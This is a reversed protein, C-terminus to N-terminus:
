KVIGCGCGTDNETLWNGDTGADAIPEWTGTDPDVNGGCEPGPGDATYGGIFEYSGAIWGAERGAFDMAYLNSYVPFPFPFEPPYEVKAWSTDQQTWTLGGDTTYFLATKRSSSDSGLLFGECRDFFYVQSLTDVTGETFAPLPMTEWTVGGDTTRELQPSRVNNSTIWGERPNIFSPKGYAKAEVAKLTNWTVAGDTTGILGGGEYGTLEGTDENYQALGSSVWGHTANVFYVGSLSVDGLPTTMPTWSAAGDHSIFVESGAAAVVFNEGFGGLGSVPKLPIFNPHQSETWSLGGDATVFVRALSGVYCKLPSPAFASLFMALQRSDPTAMAWSGGGNSTWYVVAKDQGMMDIIGAVYAHTADGAAVGPFGREENTGNQHRSWGGHARSSALLSALCLLAASLGTIRSRTRIM